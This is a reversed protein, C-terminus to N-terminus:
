SVRAKARAVAINERFLNALSSWAHVNVEYEHEDEADADRTLHKARGNRKEMEIVREIEDFGPNLFAERNGRM